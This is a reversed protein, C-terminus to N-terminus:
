RELTEQFREENDETGLRPDRKVVLSKKFEKMNEKLIAADDGTDLPDRYAKKEIKPMKLM